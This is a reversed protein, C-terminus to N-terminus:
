PQTPVIRKGGLETVTLERSQVKVPVKHGFFVHVAADHVILGTGGHDTLIADITDAVDQETKCVRYATNQWDPHTIVVHYEPQEEAKPGADTEAAAGLSAAPRDTETRDSM